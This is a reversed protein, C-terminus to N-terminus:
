ILLSSRHGDIADVHRRSLPLHSKEAAWAADFREITERAAAILPAAAVRARNAMRVLTEENFDTWSRSRGFKLASQEGPLYAITSLLDYAPSLVPQRGDPYVLSWNKLHMDGNGILVCFTLRRVFQDVSPGDTADALVSLINGYSAKEYKEEPYVGFIQAFDEMHVRGNASRDFRRIAFATEGLQEVGEPLGDVEDLGVLDFEPTDIGVLSALRMTAFENEPVNAFNTSPLKVIWEGGEGGVPITLGANKGKNKLASFKLQVGALSFRLRVAEGDATAEEEVFPPAAPQDAPLARVAGPLDGGLSRLLAFERIANVGARGALYDRLAGEPLLNSFFPELRVRYARPRDILQGLDDRYSLSLTPRGPDAAYDQAFAFISREGDLAAITGIRRDHLFIELARPDTM